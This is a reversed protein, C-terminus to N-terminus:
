RTGAVVPRRVGSRSLVPWLSVTAWFVFMMILTASGDAGDAAAYAGVFTLFLEIVLWAGLMGMRKM